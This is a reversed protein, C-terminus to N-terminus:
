GGHRNEGQAADPPDLLRDGVAIGLRAAEGGGIELVWRVPGGSPILSESFPEARPHIHRITGDAGAFLLDLPLPTNKMWFAVPAEEHFDFLMGHREPLSQRFMLGRSREAPTRALEVALELTGTGTAIALKAVPGAQSALVAGPLALLMALVARRRMAGGVCAAIKGQKGAAVAEGGAGTRAGAM